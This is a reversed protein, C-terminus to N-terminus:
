KLELWQKMAAEIRRLEATNLVALRHLLNTPKAHGPGQVDFAGSELYGAPIVVEFRGGRTSTTHPVCAILAREDDRYPTSVIVAPRTKAAYGLDVLWVEGRRANKM